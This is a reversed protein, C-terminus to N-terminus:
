ALGSRLPHSRLADRSEECCHGQNNLIGQDKISSVLEAIASDTLSDFAILILPRPCLLLVRVSITVRTGSLAHSEKQVEHGASPHENQKAAHESQHSPYQELNTSRQGLWGLWLFRGSAALLIPVRIEQLTGAL